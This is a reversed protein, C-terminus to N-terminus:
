YDSDFMNALNSKRRHKVKEDSVAEEAEADMVPKHDEPQDVMKQEKLNDLSTADPMEGGGVLEKAKDLGEELSDSDPAMVSVKKMEDMGNKVRGGLESHCMDMLEQLVDLKAQVETDSMKSKEKKSSLMKELDKM